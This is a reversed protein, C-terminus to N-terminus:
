MKGIDNRSTTMQSSVIVSIFHINNVFMQLAITFCIFGLTHHQVGSSAHRALIAGRSQGSCLLALRLMTVVIAVRWMHRAVRRGACCMWVQDGDMGPTAFINLVDQTGCFGCYIYMYKIRKINM